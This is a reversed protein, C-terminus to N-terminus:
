GRKTSGVDSVVCQPGAAELVAKAATTLAGVPTAVFVAEAGDVAEALNPEARDLAGRELGHEMAHDSADHGTVTADLRERAALAISGGILGVGVVTVRM